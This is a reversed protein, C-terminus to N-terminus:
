CNLALTDGRRGNWVRSRSWRPELQGGILNNLLDDLVGSLTQSWGLDTNDQSISVTNGLDLEDGTVLDQSDELRVTQSRLDWLVQVEQDLLSDRDSLVQLSVSLVLVGLESQNQDLGSDVSQSSVVSGNSDQWWVPLVLRGGSRSQDVLQETYYINKPCRRYALCM